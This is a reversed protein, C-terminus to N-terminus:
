HIMDTAVMGEPEVQEVCDPWDLQPEDPEDQPEVAATVDDTADHTVM